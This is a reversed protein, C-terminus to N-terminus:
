FQRIHRLGTNVTTTTIDRKQLHEIFQIVTNESIDQIEGNYFMHFAKFERQYNVLTIPALNKAKSYRIFETFASEMQVASNKVKICIKAM